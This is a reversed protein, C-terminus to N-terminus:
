YAKLDMDIGDLLLSDLSLNKTMENGKSIFSEKTHLLLDSREEPMNVICTHCVYISSSNSKKPDGERILIFNPNCLFIMDSLFDKSQNNNRRRQIITLEKKLKQNIEYYNNHFSSRKMVSEDRFSLTHYLDYLTILNWNVYSMMRDEENDECAVYWLKENVSTNCNCKKMRATRQYSGIALCLYFITFGGYSSIDEIDLISVIGSLIDEKSAYVDLTSSYSECYEIILRIAEKQKINGRREM